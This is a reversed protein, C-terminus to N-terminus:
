DSLRPGTSLSRLSRKRPFIETFPWAIALSSNAWYSVLSQRHQTPAEEAQTAHKIDHETQLATQVTFELIGKSEHHYNSLNGLLTRETRCVERALFV